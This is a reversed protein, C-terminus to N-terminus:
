LARALLLGLIAIIVGVHLFIDTRTFFNDGLVLDLILNVFVLGVGLLPLLGKRAALYESVDDLFQSLFDEIKKM